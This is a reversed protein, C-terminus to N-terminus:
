QRGVLHDPDVAVHGHHAQLVQSREDKSQVAGQQELGQTRPSTPFSPPALDPLTPGESLLQYYPRLLALPPALKLFHPRLKTLAVSLPPHLGGLTLPTYGLSYPILVPLGGSNQRWRKGEQLRSSKSGPGQELGM